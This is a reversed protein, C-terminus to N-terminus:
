KNTQGLLCKNPIENTGIFKDPCPCNKDWYFLLIVFEWCRQSIKTTQGSLNQGYLYCFAFNTGNENQGLLHVFLLDRLKIIQNNTRVLNTWVFLLDLAVDGCKNNTWLNQGYSYCISEM